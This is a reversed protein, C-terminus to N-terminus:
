YHSIKVSQTGQICLSLGFYNNRCLSMLWHERYVCPYVLFSCIIRAPTKTNGTYVPIFRSYNNLHRSVILTGQICLSLGFNKWSRISSFLHERYVCPYVPLAVWYLDIIDTNGTYVPIFRRNSLCPSRRIPTGQICLSLGRKTACGSTLSM